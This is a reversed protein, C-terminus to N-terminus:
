FNYTLDLHIYIFLLRAEEKLLLLLFIFEVRTGSAKMQVLSDDEVSITVYVSQPCYTAAVPM